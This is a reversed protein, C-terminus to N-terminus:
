GGHYDVLEVDHADGNEWRFCLRWRQSVRISYQGRRDGRLAELRNGPPARLDELCQANSLMRLKRRATTQLELHFRKVLEGKWIKETKSCRFSAITV